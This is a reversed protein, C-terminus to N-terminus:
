LPLEDPKVTTTRIISGFSLSDQSFEVVYHDVDARTKWALEISTLNRIKATLETPTYARDLDLEEMVPDALDSCAICACVFLGLFLAKQIYRNKMRQTISNIIMIM